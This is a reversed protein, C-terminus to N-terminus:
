SDDSDGTDVFARVRQKGQKTVFPVLATVTGDQDDGNSKSITVAEGVTLEDPEAILCWAKVWRWKKTPDAM